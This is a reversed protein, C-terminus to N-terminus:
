KLVRLFDRCRQTPDDHAIIDSCVAMCTVGAATVQAVNDVTIGGIAVAPLPVQTIAQRAYQPGAIRPKHKTTTAFMPGVGIYTAGDRLAQQAQEVCETSVGVIMDNGVLKRVDTCPLDTQGLHVGDAGALQAIDPRDNIISIANHKRCAATFIKARRLLEGGDLNKERLQVCQAGGALVDALTEEWSKKCLSETLLVYLRAASFRMSSAQQGVMRALTQELAYGRYRLQEANAAASANITKGCEGIVRLAESLRKGEAVIVAGLDPRTQEADTKITTGVDNPTDRCLIADSIKLDKLVQALAHRLAKIDGSLMADNLAFRAYDEMVRLAERARNANADIMRLTAITMLSNYLLDHGPYLLLPSHPNSLM